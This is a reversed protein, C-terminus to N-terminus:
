AIWMFWLSLSFMMIFASHEIMLSIGGRTRDELQLAPPHLQTLRDDHILIDFESLCSDNAMDSLRKDSWWREEESFVGRAISVDPMPEWGM